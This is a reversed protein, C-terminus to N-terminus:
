SAIMLRIKSVSVRAFGPLLTRAVSIFEPWSHDAIRFESITSLCKPPIQTSVAKLLANFLIGGCNRLSFKLNTGISFPVLFGM